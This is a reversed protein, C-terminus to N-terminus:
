RTGFGEATHAYPEVAEGAVGVLLVVVFPAYWLSLMATGDVSVGVAEGGGGGCLMGSSTSDILRWDEPGASAARQVRLFSLYPLTWPWFRARVM